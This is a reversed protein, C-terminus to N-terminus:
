LIKLNSSACVDEVDKGHVLAAKDATMINLKDAIRTHCRDKKHFEVEWLGLGHM